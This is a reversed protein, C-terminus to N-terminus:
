PATRGLFDLARRMLLASAQADFFPLGADAFLHRDGPYLCLEGHKASAVLTRAADLDGEGAFFPDADMGHIQVPLEQPWEAAPLCAELLLAGRARPRTQALTQAPIVGLSWGAYVMEDPLTDAARVGQELLDDLGIKEAHAQGDDLRAFPHVAFLDPPHM